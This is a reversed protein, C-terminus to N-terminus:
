RKLNDWCLKFVMKLTSAIPESEIIVGIQDRASIMAIRNGYIDLEIKFPFKKPDIVKIERLQAKDSKKFERIEPSDSAICLAKIKKKVRRKVYNFLWEAEIANFTDSSAWQYMETNPHRLTDDYTKKLGEVGEFFLIKPKIGSINSLSKLDPLIQALLAEKKRIIIKLDEPEVAIFKKKKGRTTTKIYGCNIMEDILDYITTRKIESKKAIEKISTEGLELCALYIKAQKKTLGIEQLTSDIM